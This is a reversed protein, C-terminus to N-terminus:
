MSAGDPRSTAVAFLGPRDAEWMTRLFAAIHKAAEIYRATEPDAGLARAMGATAALADINHEVSIADVAQVEGM